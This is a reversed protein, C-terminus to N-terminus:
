TASLLYRRVLGRGIKDSFITYNNREKQVRGFVIASHIGLEDAFREIVAATKAIRAPSRKWREEPILMNSAFEDAERELEDLSVADTDDFFGHSLGTRYHLIIHALEHLLTFWFNDVADRRLTMGVVPIKDVLFAAGDVKMGPIQAEAILVIGKELLFRRARDPGDDHASLKVLDLLWSVDLPRYEIMGAAIVLEARRTVRAKWALLTLDDTLDEVNLGTRLLSPSGYRVIHDSVYRQLYNYSEDTPLAAAEQDFWRHTRAHKLIKKVEEASVKSAISWGSGIWDSL